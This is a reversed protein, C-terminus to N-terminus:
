RGARAHEWEGFCQLDCFYMVQDEAEAKMAGLEELENNCVACNLQPAGNPREKRQRVDPPVAGETQRAAEKGNREDSGAM